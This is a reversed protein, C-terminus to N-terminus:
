LFDISFIWQFSRHQLQLELVKAMQHLSGVWQFLDQDQSLNFAPPSPSLLPHSPQIADGVRHVHTQATELLQHHVPFGPTSCDMPWLTSVVWHTFLLLLLLIWSFCSLFLCGRYFFPVTSFFGAGRLKFGFQTIRLVSHSTQLPSSM